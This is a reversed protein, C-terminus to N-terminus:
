HEGLVENVVALEVTKSGIVVHSTFIVVSRQGCSVAVGKKEMTPEQDDFRSINCQETSKGFTAFAGYIARSLAQGTNPGVLNWPKTVSSLKGERFSVFGDFSADASRGKEKIFFDDSGTGQDLVSYDEQLASLVSSKTAGLSMHVKGILISDSTPAQASSPVGLAFFLVCTFLKVNGRAASM